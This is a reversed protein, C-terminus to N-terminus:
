PKFIDKLSQLFVASSISLWTRMSTSETLHISQRTDPEKRLWDKGYGGSQCTKLALNGIVIDASLNLPAALFFNKLSESLCVPSHSPFDSLHQGMCHLNYTLFIEFYCRSLLQLSMLFLFPFPIPCLGALGLPCEILMCLKHIIVWTIVQHLHDFGLCVHLTAYSVYPMTSALDFFYVVSSIFSFFFPVPVNIGM